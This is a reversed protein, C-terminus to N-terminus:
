SGSQQQAPDVYNKVIMGNLEWHGGGPESPDPKWVCGSQTCVAIPEGGDPQAGAIYGLGEVVMTIEKTSMTYLSRPIPIDPSTPTGAPLTDLDQPSPAALVHPRDSLFDLTNSKANLLHQYVFRARTLEMTARPTNTGMDLDFHITGQRIIDGPSPEDIQSCIITPRTFSSAEPFTPNAPIVKPLVYFIRLTHTKIAFQAIFGGAREDFDDGFIRGLTTTTTNFLLAQSSAAKLREHCDIETIEQSDPERSIAFARIKESGQPALIATVPFLMRWTDKGLQLLTKIPNQLLDIIASFDNCYLVIEVDDPKNGGKELLIRQFKYKAM